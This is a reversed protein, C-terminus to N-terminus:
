ISYCSPVKLAYNRIAIPQLGNQSGYIVYSPYLYMKTFLKRVRALGRASAHANGGPCEGRRWSVDNFVTKAYTDFGGHVGALFYQYYRPVSSQSLGYTSSYGSLM